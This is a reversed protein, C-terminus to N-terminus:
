LAPASARLVFPAAAVLVVVVVLAGLLIARPAGAAAQLPRTLAGVAIANLLGLLPRALGSPAETGLARAVAAVGLAGLSPLGILTIAYLSMVRGRLEGPVRLQIM